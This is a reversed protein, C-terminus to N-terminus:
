RPCRQHAYSSNINNFECTSVAKFYSCHIKGFFYFLIPATFCGNSHGVWQPSNLIYQAKVQCAFQKLLVSNLPYLYCVTFMKHKLKQCERKKKNNNNTIPIFKLTMSFDDIRDTVFGILPQRGYWHIIFETIKFKDSLYFLNHGSKWSLIIFNGKIIYAMEYM